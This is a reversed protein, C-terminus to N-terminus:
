SSRNSVTQSYLELLARFHITSIRNHHRIMSKSTQLRIHMLTHHSFVVKEGQLVFKTPEVVLLCFM